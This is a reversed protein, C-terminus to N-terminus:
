NFLPAIRDGFQLLIGILIGIVLFWLALGVVQKSAEILGQRLPPMPANPENIRVLPHTCTSATKRRM